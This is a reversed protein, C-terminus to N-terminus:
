FFKLFKKKKSRKLSNKWPKWFLKEDIPNINSQSKLIEWVTDWGPFGGLNRDDIFLDANLKRSFTGDYNENKFNSNIAYFEIGNKRCFEVAEELEKGHRFTWLILLHGEEQLLKLTEFAFLKVKGIKPYEHEVITGDFDIAIKM